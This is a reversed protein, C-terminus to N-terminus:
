SLNQGIRYIIYVARSTGCTPEGETARKRKRNIPNKRHEFDKVREVKEELEKTTFRRPPDRFETKGNFLRSKRYPHDTRLFRRHGVYGVKSKLSEYCPNEDCHM